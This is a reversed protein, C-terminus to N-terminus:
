VLNARLHIPVRNLENALCCDLESAEEIKTVSPHLKMTSIIEVMLTPNSGEILEVTKTVLNSVIISLNCRYLVSTCHGLFFLFCM